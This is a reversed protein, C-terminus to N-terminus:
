GGHAGAHCASKPEEGLPERLVTRGRMAVNDLLEERQTLNGAPILAASWGTLLNEKTGTTETFGRSSPYSHGPPFTASM